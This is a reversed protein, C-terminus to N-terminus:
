ISYVDVVSIRLGECTFKISLSQHMSAQACAVCTPDGGSDEALFQFRGKFHHLNANPVECQLQGTTSMVQLQLLYQQRSAAFCSETPGLGLYCVHQNVAADSKCGHCHWCVM